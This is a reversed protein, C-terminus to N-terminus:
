GPGGAAVATPRFWEVGLLIHWALAAAAAALGPLLIHNDSGVAAAVVVMHLVAPSCYRCGSSSMHCLRGTHHQAAGGEGAVSLIGVALDGRHPHYLYSGPSRARCDDVEVPISHAPAAWAVLDPVASEEV